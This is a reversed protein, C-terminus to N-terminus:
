ETTRRRNILRIGFTSAVAPMNVYNDQVACNGGSIFGCSIGTVLAAGSVATIQNDAICQDTSRGAAIAIAPNTTLATYECVNDTVKIPGCAGDGEYFFYGFGAGSSFIDKAHNGSAKVNNAYYAYVGVPYLATFAGSAISNQFRNDTVSVDESRVSSSNQDLYVAFNINDFFNNAVDIKSSGASYIQKDFLYGTSQLYGNFGCKTILLETCTDVYIPCGYGQFRMNEIALGGLGTAKILNGYYQNGGVGSQGRSGGGMLTVLSAAGDGLISVANAAITDAALVGNGRFYLYSGNVGPFSLKGGYTLAALATLIASTDDNGYIIQTGAASLTTGANALLTISTSSAVGAIATVLPAGATGAGPLVITKGIDATTFMGASVTLTNYGAAISANATYTVTNGQAGFDMVCLQKSLRSQLTTAVAGAASATYAIESVDPQAFQPTGSTDIGTMFQNAPASASKVGGLASSAAPQVLAAFAGAATAQGTGGNAIALATGSWNSNNVPSPVWAPGSIEWVLFTETAEDFVQWGNKPPYYTWFSGNAQYVAVSNDNGAWIGTAGVGVIYKDQDNPTSPAVTLAANTVAPQILGDLAVLAENVTVDKQAQNPDLLTIGYNLTAAM